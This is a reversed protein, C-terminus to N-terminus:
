EVLEDELLQTQSEDQNLIQKQQQLDEIKQLPKDLQNKRTTM